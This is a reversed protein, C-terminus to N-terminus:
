KKWYTIERVVVAQCVITVIIEELSDFGSTVLLGMKDDNWNKKKIKTKKRKKGRAGLDNSRQQQKKPGTKTWEDEM